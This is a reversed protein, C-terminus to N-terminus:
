RCINKGSKAILMEFPELQFEEVFDQNELWLYQYVYSDVPLKVTPFSISGLSVEMKVGPIM